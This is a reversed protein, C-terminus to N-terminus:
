QKINICTLEGQEEDFSTYFDARTNCSSCILVAVIGEGELGYDEFSFDSQWVMREGCHWCRTVM